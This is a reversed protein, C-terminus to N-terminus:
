TRIINIHQKLKDHTDSDHLSLPPPASADSATSSDTIIIRRAVLAITFAPLQGMRRRSLPRAPQITIYGNMTDM